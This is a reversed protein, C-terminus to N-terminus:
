SRSEGSDVGHDGVREAPPSYSSDGPVAELSNRARISLLRRLVILRSRTLVHVWMVSSQSRMPNTIEERYRFITMWSSLLPGDVGECSDSRASTEMALM